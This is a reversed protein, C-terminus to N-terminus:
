PVPGFRVAAITVGTVASYTIPKVAAPAAYVPIAAIGTTAPVVYPVGDVTVTKTAVDTNRVILVTALDWGAARTGSLVTDGGGSAAGMVVNALGATADQVTLAAM